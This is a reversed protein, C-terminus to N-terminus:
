KRRRRRESMSGSGTSRTLCIAGPKTTVRASFPQAPIVSARHDGKVTQPSDELGGVLVLLTRPDSTRRFKRRLERLRFRRKLRQL